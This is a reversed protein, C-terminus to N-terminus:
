GLGICETCINIAKQLVDEAGGNFIGVVIFLVSLVLLSVRAINIVKNNNKIYTEKIKKGDTKIIKKVIELEKKASYEEYLTTVILSAFGIICWPLLHIGMDIAQKTLDGSADFHKTNLLYCLGMISCLSVIIINVIQSIRRKQNEKRILSYEEDLDENIFEPCIIMLTKLKAINTVKAIEKQPNNKINFYIGAAIIVIGWIIIVPLIQILYKGCIERTFTHDNGYYIRLIQVGFLIGMLITQISVIILFIKDLKTKHM